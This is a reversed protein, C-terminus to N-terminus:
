LVQKKGMLLPKETNEYNSTHFVMEAYNQFGSQQITIPNLYYVTEEKITM